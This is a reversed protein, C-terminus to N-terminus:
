QEQEGVVKVVVFIEQLEEETALPWREEDYLEALRIRYDGSGHLFTPYGIEFESFGNTIPSAWGAQIWGKELIDVWIGYSGNFGTGNVYTITINGYVHDKVQYLDKHVYLTINLENISISKYVPNVLTNYEKLLQKYDDFLITYNDLVDMYSVNIEVIKEKARDLANKYLETHYQYGYVISELNSNQNEYFRNHELLSSVQSEYSEISQELSTTYNLLENREFTLTNIQNEYESTKRLLDSSTIFYVSIAGTIIGLILFTIGYHKKSQTFM